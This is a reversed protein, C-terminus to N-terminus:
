RGPRPLEAGVTISHVTAKLGEAIDLTNTRAVLQTPSATMDSGAIRVRRRTKGWAWIASSARGQTASRYARSGGDVASERGAASLVARAGCNAARRRSPGNRSRREQELVGEVGSQDGPQGADRFADAVLAVATAQQEGVGNRDGFRAVDGTVFAEIIQFKKAAGAHDLMQGRVGSNTQFADFGRAIGTEFPELRQANGAGTMPM